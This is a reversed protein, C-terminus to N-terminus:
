LKMFESCPKAFRVAYVAVHHEFPNYLLSMVSPHFFAEEATARATSAAQAFHSQPAIQALSLASTVSTLASTVQDGIEDQIVMRPLSKVQINLVFYFSHGVSLSHIM